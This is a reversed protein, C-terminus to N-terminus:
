KRKKKSARNRKKPRPKYKDVVAKAKSKILTEKSGIEYNRWVWIMYAFGTVFLLALWFRMGLYIINQDRMVALIVGAVSFERMHPAIGSFYKEYVKHDYSKRLGKEANWSLIFVLGFFVLLPIFLTFVLGPRPDFLYSPDLLQFLNM